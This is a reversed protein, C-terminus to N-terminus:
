WSTLSAGIRRRLLIAALGAGILLLSSPEPVANIAINDFGADQDTGNLQTSFVLTSSAGTFTFVQSFSHWADSNLVTFLYTNGDIAVSVGVQSPNGSSKFASQMDWSLTYQVGLSLGAIVQSMMPVVGPDNNLSVWGGPNGAGLTQGAGVQCFSADTNATTWGSCDVTFDGNTILNASLPLSLLALACLVRFGM